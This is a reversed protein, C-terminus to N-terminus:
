KIGYRVLESRNEFDHSRSRAIFKVLGVNRAYFFKYTVIWISDELMSHAEFLMVPNFDGAPVTLTTDERTTKITAPYDFHAVRYLQDSNFVRPSDFYINDDSSVIRGQDATLWAKLPHANFDGELHYYRFGLMLTDGSIYMSDTSRLDVTGDDYVTSNKFIWYNGVELPYYKEPNFFSISNEEKGCSASLLCIVSLYFLTTKM